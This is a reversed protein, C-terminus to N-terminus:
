KLRNQTRPLGPFTAPAGGRRENLSPRHGRLARTGSSGRGRGARDWPFEGQAERESPENMEDKFLHGKVVTPTAAANWSHTPAMPSAM